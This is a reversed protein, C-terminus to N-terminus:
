YQQEPVLLFVIAFATESTPTTAGSTTGSFDELLAVLQARHDRATDGCCGCRQHEHEDTRAEPESEDRRKRILADRKSGRRHRRRDPQNDHLPQRGQNGAVHGATQAGFPDVQVCVFDEEAIGRM